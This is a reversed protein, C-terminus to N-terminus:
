MSLIFINITTKKDALKRALGSINIFRFNYIGSKADIEPILIIADGCCTFGYGSYTIVNVSIEDKKIM